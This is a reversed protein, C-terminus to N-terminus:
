AYLNGSESPCDSDLGFFIITAKILDSRAQSAKVNDFAPPAPHSVDFMSCGVDLVSTQIRSASAGGADRCEVGTGQYDTENNM